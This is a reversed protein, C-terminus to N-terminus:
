QQSEVRDRVLGDTLWVQDSKAELPGIIGAQVRGKMLVSSHWYDRARSVDAVQMVVIITDPEDASCFQGLDTLGVQKRDRKL